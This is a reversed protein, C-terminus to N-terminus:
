AGSSWTRETSTEPRMEKWPLTSATPLAKRCLRTASLGVVVSPTQSTCKEICRMLDMSRLFCCTYGILGFM